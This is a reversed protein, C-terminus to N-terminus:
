LIGTRLDMYWYWEVSKNAIVRKLNLKLNIRGSMSNM